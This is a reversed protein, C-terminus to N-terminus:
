HIKLQIAQAHLHDRRELVSPHLVQHGDFTMRLATADKETAVLRELHKELRNYSLIKLTCTIVDNLSPPISYRTVSGSSGTRMMALGAATRECVVGWVM